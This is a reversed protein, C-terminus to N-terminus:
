NQVSVSTRSETVIKFFFNETQSNFEQKSYGDVLGRAGTFDNM